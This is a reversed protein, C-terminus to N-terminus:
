STCRQICSALNMDGVGRYFVFRTWRIAGEESEASIRLVICDLHPFNKYWVRCDDWRQGVRSKGRCTAVTNRLALQCGQRCPESMLRALVGTALGAHRASKSRGHPHIGAIHRHQGDEEPQDRQWTTQPLLWCLRKRSRSKGDLFESRLYRLKM